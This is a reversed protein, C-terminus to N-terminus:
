SALRGDVATAAGASAGTVGVATSALVVMSVLSGSLQNLLRASGGGRGRASGGGRGVVLVTMAMSSVASALGTMGGGKGGRAADRSGSSETTAVACDDRSARRPSPVLRDM